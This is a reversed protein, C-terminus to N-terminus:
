VKIPPAEVDNVENLASKKVYALISLNLGSIPGPVYHTTTLHQFKVKIHSLNHTGDKLHM